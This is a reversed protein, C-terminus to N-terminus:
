KRLNFKLHHCYDKKMGVMELVAGVKAKEISDPMLLGEKLYIYSIIATIVDKAREVERDTIQINQISIKPIDLMQIIKKVEEKALSVVLHKIGLERIKERCKQLDWKISGYFTNMENEDLILVDVERQLDSKGSSLIIPVKFNRLRKMEEVSVDSSIVIGDPDVIVLGVEEVGLEILNRVISKSSGVYLIKM